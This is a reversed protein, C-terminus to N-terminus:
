SKSVDLCRRGTTKKNKYAVGVQAATGVATLSFLLQAPEKIVDLVVAM